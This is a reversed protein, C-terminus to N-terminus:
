FCGIPVSAISNGGPDYVLRDPEAGVSDPFRIVAIGQYGATPLGLSIARADYLSSTGGRHSLQYVRPTGDVTGSSTSTVVGLQAIGDAMQLDMQSYATAGAIATAAVRQTTWTGSERRSYYRVEAPQGGGAALAYAVLVGNYTIASSTNRSDGTVVFDRLRAAPASFSGTGIRGLMMDYLFWHISDGVSAAVVHLRFGNSWVSVRMPSNTVVVPAGELNGTTANLTHFQVRGAANRSYVWVNVSGVAVHVEVADTAITRSWRYEAGYRPADALRHVHIDGATDVSAYVATHTTPHAGIDYIPGFDLALAPADETGDRHMRRLWNRGGIYWIGHIHDRSNAARPLGFNAGVALQLPPGAVMVGDDILGDCDDDIGNCTEAPLACASPAAPMCASTCTGTGTSGCSTTCSASQGAACAFGEDRTGDCDDDVGNCVEAPPTCAAGSPIACASTCAGSGTTGCSTTCSVSAGLACAFGDDPAGDCDDDMGNCTEAPPACASPEAPECASTCAGTGLSGCSTTCVATAGAACSFGDDIAGDCDDDAGNCLEAPPACEAGSPIACAATCAGMGATGCGTTCGVMAGPVCAFTQDVSGDCDNDRGDCVEAAGPHCDACTDDCDGASAVFGDVPECSEVSAAPDGHLDGDLDRYWRQPDSCSPPGTDPLDPPGGDTVGGGGDVTVSGGGDVTVGGDAGSSGDLGVDVGGCSATLLLLVGLMGRRENM